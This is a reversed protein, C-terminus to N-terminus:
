SDGAREHQHLNHIDNDEGSGAGKAEKKTHLECTENIWFVLSDPDRESGWAGRGHANDMVPCKCGQTLAEDSGPNPPKM